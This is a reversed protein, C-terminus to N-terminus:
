DGPQGPLESVRGIAKFFTYCFTGNDEATRYLDAIGQDFLQADILGADLAAQRVGEIMATFTKRTFGDVLGPRSSDAYVMRPSVRVDLYGAMNLLPSLKRGINADGGGRRQLEVQSQIARNAADSDPHFYASGHDGEIV